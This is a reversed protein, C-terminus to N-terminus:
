RRIYENEVILFLLMTCTRVQSTPCKKNPINFTKAGM